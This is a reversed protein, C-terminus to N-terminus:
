RRRPPRMLAPAAAMPVNSPSRGSSASRDPRMSTTSFTRVRRAARSRSSTRTSLSMAPRADACSATCWKPCGSSAAWTKGNDRTFYVPSSSDGMPAWVINAPDTGMAIRGFKAGEFPKTQFLRFTRGNDDSYAADGTNNWQWGGAAVMSDPHSPSADLQFVDEFSNRYADYGTFASGDAKTLKLRHEPIADLDTHRFGGLDWIGSILPAGASPSLVDGCTMQERGESLLSWNMNSGGVGTGINAGSFDTEYVVSPNLPDFQVDSSFGAPWKVDGGNLQWAPQFGLTITSAAPNDPLFRYQRWEKGGDKTYFITRDDYTITLLQNVDTPHLGIGSFPKDAFGPPTINTWRDAKYRWLGQGHTSVYLAHDIGIRGRIVQADAGPGGQLVGWTVGGDLSRYVGGSASPANAEDSAKGAHVGAYITRTPKGNRGGRWDFAVFSIGIRLAGKAPFSPVPHWTAAADSSRFMGDSRTGYLLVRSANPDVALREGAPKEEGGPDAFVDKGAANRLNTRGWHKGGDTTKMVDYINGWRGGGTAVYLINPNNADVALSDAVFLQSWKWPISDMLQVWRKAARDFRYIGGTDNRSYMLEPRKPNFVLGTAFEVGGMLANKWEYHEQGVVVVPATDTIRTGDASPNHEAQPPADLALDDLWVKAGTGGKVTFYFVVHAAGDPLNVKREFARWDASPALKGTDSDDSTVWALQKSYDANFVQLSYALSSVAGSTRTVGSLKFAPSSPTFTQQASGGAAGTIDLRLAAPSSRYVATDRRLRVASDKGTEWGAPTDTGESFSPNVLLPAAAWVPRQLYSPSLFLTAALLAVSVTKRTTNM